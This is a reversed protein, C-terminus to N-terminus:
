SVKSRFSSMLCCGRLVAHNEKEALLFVNQAQTLQSTILRLGLDEEPERGGKRTLFGEARAAWGWSQESKDQREQEVAEEMVLVM